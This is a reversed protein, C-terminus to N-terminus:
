SLTHIAHVIPHPYGSCVATTVRARMRPTYLTLAVGPSTSAVTRSKERAHSTCAACKDVAPVNSKGDREVIVPFRDSYKERVRGSEYCRQEYSLKQKHAFGVEPARAFMM